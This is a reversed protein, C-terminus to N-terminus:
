KNVLDNLESLLAEFERNTLSSRSRPRCTSDSFETNESCRPCIEDEDPSLQARGCVLCKM